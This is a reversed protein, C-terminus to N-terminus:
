LRSYVLVTRRLKIRKTSKKKNYGFYNKGLFIFVLPSGSGSIGKKKKIYYLFFICACQSLPLLIIYYIFVRSKYPLDSKFPYSIFDFLGLSDMDVLEM